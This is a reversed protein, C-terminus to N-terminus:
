MKGGFDLTGLKVNLVHENKQQNHLSSLASGSLPISYSPIKGFGFPPYGILNLRLFYALKFMAGAITTCSGRKIIYLHLVFYEKNCGM